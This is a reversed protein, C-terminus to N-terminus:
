LSGGPGQPLKKDAPNPAAPAKAEVPAVDTATPKGRETKTSYRVHEGEKITKGAAIGSAHVFIDKGGNDPLIFGYGKAPNYWKVKGTEAPARGVVAVLLLGVIAAIKKM